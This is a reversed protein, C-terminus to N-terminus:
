CSLPALAEKGPSLNPNSDGGSGRWGSRPEAPCKEQREDGWRGVIDPVLGRRTGRLPEHVVESPSACKRQGGAGTPEAGAAPLLVLFRPPAFARWGARVGFLLVTLRGGGRLHHVSVGPEVALRQGTPEGGELVLVPINTEPRSPLQPEPRE